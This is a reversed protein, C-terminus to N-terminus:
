REGFIHVIKSQLLKVSLNFGESELKAIMNAKKQSRTEEKCLSHLERLVRTLRCVTKEEQDLGFKRVKLLQSKRNQKRRRSNRNRKVNEKLKVDLTKIIHAQIKSMIKMCTAEFHEWEDKNEDLPSHNKLLPILNNKFRDKLDKSVRGYHDGILRPIFIKKTYWIKTEV